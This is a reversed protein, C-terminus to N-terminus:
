LTQIYTWWRKLALTFPYNYV